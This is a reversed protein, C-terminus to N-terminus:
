DGSSTFLYHVWGTDKSGPSVTLLHSIDKLGRAYLNHADTSCTQNEVCFFAPQQTYVVMHTFGASAKLTVKVGADRYEIFAPKDPVMGIYVDDLDLEALPRGGTLDYAGGELPEVGGTPMLNVAEMHGTAPVTLYTQEREGLYIFYPHLAFGYPISLSDRNDVTCDFRIGLSDVTFKLNLRHDFGFLRHVRSGPSFDLYVLVSAGNEDASPEEFEWPVSHVLGHLFRDGDNLGFDFSRGEFAFKGGAVRNPTPYLVPTGYRFGPLQDLSEPVHLLERGEYQLSFLNAGSQPAIRAVLPSEGRRELVIVKQGTESDTEVVAFFVPKVMVQEERKGCASSLFNLAVVSCLVPVLAAAASRIRQANVKHIRNM